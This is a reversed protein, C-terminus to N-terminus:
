PREGLNRIEVRRNQPHRPQRPYLLRDEGYGVAVLRDADIGREILFRRVTDARRQSLQRNHEASGSADTHGGVEFRYGSLGATKLATELQALQSVAGPALESSNLEFPVNLSVETRARVGIGRTPPRELAKAIEGSSVVESEPDALGPVPLATILVALAVAGIGDRLM